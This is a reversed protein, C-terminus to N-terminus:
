RRNRSPWGPVVEKGWRYGRLGAQERLWDFERRLQRVRIPREKALDNLLHEIELWTADPRQDAADLWSDVTEADLVIPQVPGVREPVVSPAHGRKGAFLRSLM